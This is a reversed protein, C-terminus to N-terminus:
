IFIYMNNQNPLKLLMINQFPFLQVDIDYKM